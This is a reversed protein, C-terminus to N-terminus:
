GVASGILRLGHFLLFIIGIVALVTKIQETRSPPDGPLTAASPSVQAIPSSQLPQVPPNPVAAVVTGIRPQPSAARSNAAPSRAFPNEAVSSAVAAGSNSTAPPPPSSDKAVRTGEGEPRPNPHPGNAPMQRGAAVESGAGQERSGAGQGGPLQQFTVYSAALFQRVRGCYSGMTYGGTLFNGGAGFLVGAIEGRSNYIPGGSDGRRAQVDVEVLEAPLNNGPSLYETCRGAVARYIGDPGYGAITLTEGPQPTETAVRLPPVNPKQIALAALDWDRDIRLVLAGSRFGDPFVVTIPGTADRVVHWNTVVLGHNANVAVLSGSGMSTGDREAAIVRVVAPQPVQATPALLTPWALATAPVLALFIALICKV